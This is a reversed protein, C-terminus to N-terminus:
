NPEPESAPGDDVDGFLDPEVDEETKLADVLLTDSKGGLKLAVTPEGKTPDTPPTTTTIIYQFPAEAGVKLETQLTIMTQIFHRYINIGLDAERPSDHILLGPHRCQGLSGTLLLSIDALLITLTQFAEGALSRNRRISFIIEDLTAKVHGIYEQSLVAKVISEFVRRFPEFQQNLGDSIQNLHDKKLQIDNALKAREEILKGLPTDGINGLRIAEQEQLRKLIEPLEQQQTELQWKEQNKKALEVDLETLREGYTRVQAKPGSAGEELEAIQQERKAIDSANELTSKTNEANIENLRGQIHLCNGFTVGGYGCPLNTIRDMEIRYREDKASIGALLRVAGKLAISDSQSEAVLEKPERIQAIVVRIDSQLQEIAANLEQIKEINKTKRAEILNPIGDLKDVELPADAADALQFRDRLSEKHLKIAFEPERRKEEIETDLTKLNVTAERVGARETIETETVIGLLARICLSADANALSEGSKLKAGSRSSRWTWMSQYRAEQDRSCLALIHAWVLPSGDAFLQDTRIDETAKARLENLFEEYSGHQPEQEMLQAIDLDRAASSNRNRGIPRAVAWSQGFVRVQMAVWGKPFTQRIENVTAPQGFANEGLCYRILRCLTTKGVGHGPEFPVGEAAEEESGWIVNVGSSLPITRIEDLPQITRFLSIKQVWVNPENLTSTLGVPLIRESM